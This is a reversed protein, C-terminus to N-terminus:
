MTSRHQEVITSWRGIKTVDVAAYWGPGSRSWHLLYKICRLEVKVIENNRLADHVSDLARVVYGVRKWVDDQKIAFTIAKADYKSQPEPRLVVDIIHGERQRKAALALVRQSEPDRSAGICKFSITYKPVQENHPIADVIIENCANDPSQTEHDSSGDSEQSDDEDLVEDSRNAWEWHWMVFMGEQLLKASELNIAKGAESQQM